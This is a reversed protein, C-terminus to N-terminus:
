TRPRRTRLPIDGTPTYVYAFFRTGPGKRWRIESREPDPVAALALAEVHKLTWDGALYLDFAHAIAHARSQYPTRTLDHTPLNHTM